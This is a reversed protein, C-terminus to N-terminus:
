LISYQGRTWARACRFGVDSHCEQVNGAKDEAGHPALGLDGYKGLETTGKVRSEGPIPGTRM